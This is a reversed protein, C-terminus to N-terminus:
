ISLGFERNYIAIILTKGERFNEENKKIINSWSGNHSKIARITQLTITYHFVTFERDLGGAVREIVVTVSRASQDTIIENM